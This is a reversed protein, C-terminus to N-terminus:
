GTEYGGPVCAFVPLRSMLTTPSTVRLITVAAPALGTQIVSCIAHLPTAGDCSLGPSTGRKGVSCASRKM